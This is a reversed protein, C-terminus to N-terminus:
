SSGARGAEYSVLIKHHTIASWFVHSIKQHSCSEGCYGGGFSWWDRFSGALLTLIWTTAVAGANVCSSLYSGCPVFLRMSCHAIHVTVAVVQNVKNSTLCAVLLVYTLGFVAQSM